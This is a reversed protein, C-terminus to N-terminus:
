PLLRISNTGQGPTGVAPTIDSPDPLTCIASKPVNTRANGQKITITDGAAGDDTVVGSVAQGNQLTLTVVQANTMWATLLTQLSAV